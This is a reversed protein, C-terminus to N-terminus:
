EFGMSGTHPLRYNACGVSRVLAGVAGQKAAAIAAGWRYGVLRGYAHGAHGSENMRMDFRVNFLVIKGTVGARGLKELGEYDEVVVVPASLGAAGTAITGGLATLVLRQHVGAVQGPYTILEGTEQGRVWHPVMVLEKKVQLGLAELESAVYDVARAAQPSGSLRPGINNCLYSLRKLGYDSKLCADRIKVLQNSLDKPLQLKPAPSPSPSSVPSSGPATSPAPASRGFSVLVGLIACALLHRSARFPKGVKSTGSFEM